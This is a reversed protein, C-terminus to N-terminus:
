HLIHRGKGSFRVLILITIIKKAQMRNAYVRYEIRGTNTYYSRTYKSHSNPDIVWGLTLRSIKVSSYGCSLALSVSHEVYRLAEM